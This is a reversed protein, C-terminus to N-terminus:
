CASRPIVNESNRELSQRIFKGPLSGTLVLEMNLLQLCFRSLIRREVTDKMDSRKNWYSGTDWSTLHRIKLCVTAVESGRECYAKM